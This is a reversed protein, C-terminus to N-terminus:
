TNPTADIENQIAPRKLWIVTVPYAQPKAQPSLQVVERAAMKLEMVVSFPEFYEDLLGALEKMSSEQSEKNISDLVVKVLDWRQRGTFNAMGMGHLPRASGVDLRKIDAKKIKTQPLESTEM